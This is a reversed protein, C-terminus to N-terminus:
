AGGKELEAEKTEERGVGVGMPVWPLCQGGLDLPLYAHGESRQLPALPRPELSASM